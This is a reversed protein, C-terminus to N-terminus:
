KGNRRESAKTKYAEEARKAFKGINSACSSAYNKFVTTVANDGYILQCFEANKQIPKKLTEILETLTDVVYQQYNESEHVGYEIRGILNEVKNYLEYNISHYGNFVNILKKEDEPSVNIKKNDEM